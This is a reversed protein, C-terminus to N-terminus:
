TVVSGLIIVFCSSLIKNLRISKQEIIWEGASNNNKNKILNIHIWTLLAKIIVFRSFRNVYGPSRSDLHTIQLIRNSLLFSKLLWL